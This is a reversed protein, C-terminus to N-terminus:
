NLQGALKKADGAFKGGPFRQLLMDVYRKAQTREDLNVLCRAGYYLAEEYFDTDNYLQVIREFRKFAAYYEDNRWYHRAIYRERGALDNRVDKLKKKADDYYSSSPFRSVLQSFQTEAKETQTQDRDMAMKQEYSCMGSRFIVHDIKEHNPHRKAFADYATQAEAWQRKGYHADAVGLEANTVYTSFPYLDILANYADIADQFSGEKMNKQGYDYIEQATMQDFKPGCAASLLLLALAAVLPAVRLLGHRYTNL